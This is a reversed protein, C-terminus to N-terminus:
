CRQISFTQKHTLGHMCKNCTHIWFIYLLSHICIYSYNKNVNWVFCDDRPLCEIRYFRWHRWSGHTLTEKSYKSKNHSPIWGIVNPIPSISLGSYSTNSIKQFINGKLMCFNKQGLIFKFANVGKQYLGECTSLFHCWTSFTAKPHHTSLPDPLLHFFDNLPHNRRTTGSFPRQYLISLGPILFYYHPDSKTLITLLKALNCCLWTRSHKKLRLYNMLILILYLLASLIM